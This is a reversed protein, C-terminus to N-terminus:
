EFVEDEDRKKDFKKELINLVKRAWDTGYLHDFYLQFASLFMILAGLVISLTLEINAPFGLLPVLIVFFSAIFIIHVRTIKKPNMEM